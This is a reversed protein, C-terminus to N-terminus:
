RQQTGLRHNIGHRGIRNRNGQQYRPRISIARWAWSAAHFQNAQSRGRDNIAPHIEIARLQAASAHHRNVQPLLLDTLQRITIAQKSFRTVASFYSPLNAWRSKGLWWGSVVALGLLGLLTGAFKGFGKSVGL